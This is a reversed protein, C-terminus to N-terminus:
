PAFGRFPLPSVLFPVAKADLHGHARDRPVGGLIQLPAPFVAVRNTMWSRIRRAHRGRRARHTGRGM